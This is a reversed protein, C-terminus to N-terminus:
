SALNTTKEDGQFKVPVGTVTSSPHRDFKLAIPCNYIGRSRFKCNSTKVSLSVPGQYDLYHFTPARFIYFKRFADKMM